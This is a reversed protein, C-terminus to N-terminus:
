NENVSMIKLERRIEKVGDHCRKNNFRLKRVRGISAVSFGIYESIEAYSYGYESAVNVFAIRAINNINKRTKGKIDAESVEFVKCCINLIEDLKFM